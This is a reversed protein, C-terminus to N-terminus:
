IEVENEDEIIEISEEEPNIMSTIMVEDLLDMVKKIYKPDTKVMKKFEIKLKASEKGEDKFYFKSGYPGASKKVIKNHKTLVDMISETDDVGHTFYLPFECTRFPPGFRTKVCKAKTKFGVIQDGVKVQGIKALRVRVSSAFPIAKGGPTVYKDQGFRAGINTRLQNIFVQAVNARGTSRLLTYINKSLVRPKLGVTATPDPNEEKLDIDCPTAAVSDWILTVYKFNSKSKKDDIKKLVTFIYKFVEEVSGPAAYLFDKGTDLGVRNAFDTQFANETDIYVPLGGDKQTNACIQMALLTKGSAELGSIESVKGVPIGGDKRNSIIYDLLTSGTSVFTKVDSPSGDDLRYSVEYGLEKNGAESLDKIFDSM